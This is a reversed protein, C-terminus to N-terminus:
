ADEKIRRREAKTLEFDSMGEERDRLLRAQATPTKQM